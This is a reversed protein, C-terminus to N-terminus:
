AARAAEEAKTEAIATLRAIITELDRVRLELAEYSTLVVDLVNRATQDVAPGQGDSPAPLAARAEDTLRRSLSDVQARLAQIQPTSDMAAPLKQLMAKLELRDVFNSTDAAQEIIVANGGGVHARHWQWLEILQKAQDATMCGAASPTAAPITGADGDPERLQISTRTPIVGIDAM